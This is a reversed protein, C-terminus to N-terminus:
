IDIIRPNLGRFKALFDSISLIGLPKQKLEEDLFTKAFGQLNKRVLFSFVVIILIIKLLFLVLNKYYQSWRKSVWSDTNFPPPLFFLFM